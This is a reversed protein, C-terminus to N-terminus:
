NTTFKTHHFHSKIRYKLYSSKITKREKVTLIEDVFKSIDLCSRPKVPLHINISIFRIRVKNLLYIFSTKILIVHTGLNKLLDDFNLPRYRDRICM